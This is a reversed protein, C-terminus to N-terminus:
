EKKERKKVSRNIARIVYILGIIIGALGLIGVIVAAVDSGGCSLSCVLGGLLFLLGVAALISLIIGIAGDATKKDGSAKAEAYVKLEKFFEKKLVRKERRSLSEKDRYQLSNLIEQATPTIRKGPISANTASLPSWNSFGNGAMCTIAIFSALAITYDCAKRLAYKKVGKSPYFAAGAALMFASFVILWPSLSIGTKYFENGTYVALIILLIKLVIILTIAHRTHAKAWFSIKKM